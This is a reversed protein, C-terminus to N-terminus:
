RESRVDAIALWKMSHIFSLGKVTLSVFTTSYTYRSNEKVKRTPSSIYEAAEVTKIKRYAYAKQTAEFFTKIADRQLVGYPLFAMLFQLEFPTKYGLYIVEFQSFKTPFDSSNRLSVFITLIM